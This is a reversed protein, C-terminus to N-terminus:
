AYYSENDFEIPNRGIQGGSALLMQETLKSREKSDFSRTRTTQGEIGEGKNQKYAKMADKNRNKNKNVRKRCIIAICVILVVFAVFAGCFILTETVNDTM